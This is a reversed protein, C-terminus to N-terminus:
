LQWRQIVLKVRYPDSNATLRRPMALGDIDSWRSYDITWDRQQIREIHGDDGYSLDAQDAGPLGRLWHDLVAVPISWGLTRELLPEPDPGSISGVDTGELTAGSQDVSLRWHGQGLPARLDVVLSDGDRQWTFNASGGDNGDNVALRGTAAWDNISALAAQRQLLLDDGPPTPKIAGGACASLLFVAAYLGAHKLRM